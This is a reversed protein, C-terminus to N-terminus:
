MTCLTGGAAIMTPRDKPSRSDLTQIRTSGIRPSSPFGVEALMWRAHQFSFDFFVTWLEIKCQNLDVFSALYPVFPQFSSQYIPRSPQKLDSEEELFMDFLLM